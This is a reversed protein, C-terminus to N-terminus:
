AVVTVTAIGNSSGARLVSVWSSALDPIKFHEVYGAPMLMDSSTAITSDSSIRVYTDVTVAIRVKVGLISSTQNSSTTVSLTYNSGTVKTLMINRRLPGTNDGFM